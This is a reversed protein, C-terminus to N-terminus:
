SNNEISSQLNIMLKPNNLIFEALCHGGLLELPQLFNTRRLLRDKIQALNEIDGNFPVMNWLIRMANFLVLYNEKTTQNDKMIETIDASVILGKLDYDNDKEKIFNYNAFVCENKFAYEQTRLMKLGPYSDLSDPVCGYSIKTGDIRGDADM